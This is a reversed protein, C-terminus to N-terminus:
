DLRKYYCYMKRDRGQIFLDCIAYNNKKYFFNVRDNNLADTTLYVASVGNIKVQMEFERILLDAVGTGRFSSSVCLSSLLAGDNRIPGSHGRYRFASFLKKLVFVPDRLLSPVAKILFHFFRKITINAFFLSPNSTGAVFGILNGNRKAVILVSSSHCLFSSYLEVLFPIGMRSLFFGEFELSHLIAIAKIDDSRAREFNIM